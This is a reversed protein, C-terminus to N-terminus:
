IGRKSSSRGLRQICIREKKSLYDRAKCLIYTKLLNEKIELYKLNKYFSKITLILKSTLLHKSLISKFM